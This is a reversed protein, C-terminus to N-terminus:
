THQISLCQSFYEESSLLANEIYNLNNEYHTKGNKKIGLLSQVIELLSNHM